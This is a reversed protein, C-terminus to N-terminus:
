LSADTFHNLNKYTKYASLFSYNKNASLCCHGPREHYGDCEIHLIVAKVKKRKLRDEDLPTLSSLLCIYTRQIDEKNPHLCKVSFHHLAVFLKEYPGFLCLLANIAKWYCSTFQTSSILTAASRGFQM